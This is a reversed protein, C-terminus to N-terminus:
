RARGEVLEQFYGPSASSVVDIRGGGKVMPLAATITSELDIQFAGEDVFLGSATHQRLQDGGQAIAWMEGTAVAGSGKHGGKPYFHIHCYSRVAPFEAKLWEDQNQYLVWSRELMADSHEEKVAQIFNLRNIGFQTDHLYLASFTWSALIQRSKEWLNMRTQQWNEVIWRIYEKEPFPKKAVTNDHEDRTYAQRPVDLEEIGLLWAAPNIRYKEILAKKVRDEFEQPSVSSSM